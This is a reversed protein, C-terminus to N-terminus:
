KGTKNQLLQESQSYGFFLQTKGKSQLKNKRQKNHQPIESHLTFVNM